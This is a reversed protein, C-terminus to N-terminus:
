KTYTYAGNKISVPYNLYVLQASLKLLFGITSYKKILTFYPCFKYEVEKHVSKQM